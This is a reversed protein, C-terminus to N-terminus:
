SVSPISRTQRHKAALFTSGKRLIVILLELLGTALGVDVNNDEYALIWPQSKMSAKRVM